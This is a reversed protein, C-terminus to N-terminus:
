WQKEEVVGYPSVYVVGRERSKKILRYIFKKENRIIPHLRLVEKLFRLRDTRTINKPISTNLQLFTMFLKKGDIKEDLLVDELDLFNFEWNGEKELVFINCAKMDRHYVNKRHFHYMWKAFAIIFHRKQKVEKFGKFLFRDLEQGTESAEMLFFSKQLRWRNRPEVLALVKLSPIGRAKLGNGARWSRLGKSHRFPEKFRDLFHPYRFQKICIKDEGERLLSVIIDSTYKVLTSPKEKSLSLHKEIVKKIRDLPFDRRHYVTMGKEKQVTFETSEKLCRKTRSKWQRRQLSDMMSVVKQAYKKKKLSDLPNRGFYEEMFELQDKREWQSRLSHLLQSLNWLKKNLSLFRLIKSRHLDTLFFSVGDWLLNGAHLDQHFLGSDHFARVAGALEDLPARQGFQEFHGLLSIGSGIAESLYYSEKIFGWREREIWGLPKPININKKQLQYAILCEKRGKSPFLLYKLSHFLGKILDRKLFINQGNPLLLIAAWRLRTEKIVEGGGRQVFSVPDPFFDPPLVDLLDKRVWGKLEGKSIKKFLFTKM